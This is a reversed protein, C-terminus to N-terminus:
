PRREIFEVRSFDEGLYLRAPRYGDLRSSVAVTVVPYFLFIWPAEAYILSDARMYWRAAERPDTCAQGAEIWRDVLPHRYFARNGAAGWNSSHFLPFLFNEADPYDAYWDLLFADADGRSVAQKFTSWERRVIRVRIGVEALYGQVAECLRNGRPSPRQWLEMRFGEPYGAEALLRRASDPDFPYAPRERYGPLGPPIAGTARRAQGFELIRAIRDVDVALNLAVRVRRDDFPPRRNQLGIYTVRLDVFREL